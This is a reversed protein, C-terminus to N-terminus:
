FAGPNKLRKRRCAASHYTRSLAVAAHIVTFDERLLVADEYPTFRGTRTARATAVSQKREILRNQKAMRSRRNERTSRANMNADRCVHCRCGRRYGRVGHPNKCAQCMPEPNTKTTRVTEGCGVCPTRVRHSRCDFCTNTKADMSMRKGCSHCKPRKTEREVERAERKLKTLEASDRCRCKWCQDYRHGHYRKVMGGCTRCPVSVPTYDSKEVGRLQRSRYKRRMKERYASTGHGISAGNDIM